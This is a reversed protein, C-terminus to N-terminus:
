KKAELEKLIKKATLRDTGTWSDSAKKLAAVSDSTGIEKLVECAALKVKSDRHDLMKIVAKQAPEGIAILSETALKRDDKDALCEAIDGAAAEYKHAALIRLMSQRIELTSGKLNKQVAANNEPASWKELAQAVANRVTVQDAKLLEILKKAIDANPGAESHDRLKEAAAVRRHETKKGIIKILDDVSAGDLSVSGVSPTSETKTEPAPKAFGGSSKSKPLGASGSKPLGAPDTVPRGADNSAVADGAGPPLQLVGRQVFEIIPPKSLSRVQVLGNPPVRTVKVDIWRGNANVQLSDGVTIKTEADVPTGTFTPAAGPQGAQGPFAGPPNMGPLTTSNNGAGAPPPYTGSAMPNTGATNTNTGAPPPYTGGPAGATNNGNAGAPPPYTGGAPPPYTGGAPPPYTGGAPPPYTGATANPNTGAPPPYTGSPNMPTGTPMPYTAPATGNYGATNTPNSGGPTSYSSGGAPLTSNGATAGPMNSGPMNGGSMGPMGASPSATSNLVFSNFFTKVEASDKNISNSSRAMLLVMKSNVLYFRVIATTAVQQKGMSDPGAPIAYVVERGQFGNLTISDKGTFTARWDTAQGQVAFDLLASQASSNTIAPANDPAATVVGFNWRGTVSEWADGNVGPPLNVRVPKGPIKVKYSGDPASFDNFTLGCGTLCTLCLLMLCTSFHKM